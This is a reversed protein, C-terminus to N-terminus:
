ENAGEIKKLINSSLWCISCEDPEMVPSCRSEWVEKVLAVTRNREAKAVEADHQALWAAFDKQDIWAAGCNEFHDEIEMQRGFTTTYEDM